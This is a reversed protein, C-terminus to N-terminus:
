QLLSGGHSPLGIGMFMLAIGKILLPGLIIPSLMVFAPILNGIDM